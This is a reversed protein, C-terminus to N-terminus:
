LPMPRAPNGFVKVGDNIDKIVNSGISVNVNEGIHLTNSIVVNPGIWTDNGITTRGCVVAGSSIMIRKGLKVGHGVVVNQAIQTYDGVFTADWPYVASGVSSNYGIEVHNGIRVKGVHKVRYLVEGCKKVELDQGGLVVGARIVSDNGIEVNERIVVNEEITVREGIKVGNAAVTAKDNILCGKGIETSIKPNTYIEQSALYNHLLFFTNKPDEVVICGRNQRMVAGMLERKTVVMVAEKSMGDLLDEKLVFCAYPKDPGYNNLGLGMVEKENYVELLNHPMLKKIHESLLM